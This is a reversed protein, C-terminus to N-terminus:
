EAEVDEIQASQLIPINPTTQAVADLREVSDLLPFLRGIQRLGPSAWVKFNGHRDTTASSRRINGVSSAFGLLVPTVLVNNKPRLIPDVLRRYIDTAGLDSGTMRIGDLDKRREERDEYRLHCRTIVIRESDTKIGRLETGLRIVMNTINLTEYYTRTGAILRDVAVFFQKALGYFPVAVLLHRGRCVVLVDYLFHTKGRITKTQPIHRMGDASRVQRVTRHYPITSPLFGHFLTMGSFDDSPILQGKWPGTVLPALATAIETAARTTRLIEATYSQGFFDLDIL